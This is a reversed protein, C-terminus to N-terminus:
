TGWPHKAGSSGSHVPTVVAKGTGPAKAKAKGPKPATQGRRVTPRSTANGRQLQNRVVNKGRSAM